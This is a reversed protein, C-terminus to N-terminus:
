PCFKLDLYAWPISRGNKPLAGEGRARLPHAFEMNNATLWTGYVLGLKVGGCKESMGTGSMKKLLVLAKENVTTIRIGTFIRHSSPTHEDRQAM